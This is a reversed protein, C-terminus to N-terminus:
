SYKNIFEELALSILQQVKFEKHNSIFKEWSSLVNVDIKFLKQKVETVAKPKLEISSVNIYSKSKNYEHIIEKLPEIMNILENLKYTDINTNNKIINKDHIVKIIDKNDDLVYKNDIKNYGLRILRKHIVRPNVNFELKEIDSMTRGLLLQNNIYEVINEINSLNWEM